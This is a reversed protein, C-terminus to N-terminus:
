ESVGTRLFFEGADRERLWVDGDSWCKAIIDGHELTSHCGHVSYREYSATADDKAKLEGVSLITVDPNMAKVMERHYGSKRGHHSAKLLHVKPVKGGWARFLGDWMEETADGGIVINCKGVQFRLIYSLDNPNAAANQSHRHDLPSWISIGDETWLSGTQGYTLRLVTPNGGQHKRMERYTHWDQIDHNVEGTRMADEDKEICHHTDWLNAIEREGFLRHLGAMHDMDPHTQIYRFIARNPFRANLYDIPNTLKDKAEQLKREAEAMQAFAAAFLNAPQGIRSLGGLAGTGGSSPPPPLFPNPQGIRSLGSLGGTGGLSPRAPLFPNAASASKQYRSKLEAESERSLTRCNNIDIVTLRNPIDVITCDGHGVDLFHFDINKLSSVPPPSLM